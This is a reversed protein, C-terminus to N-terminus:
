ENSIIKFSFFIFISACILDLITWVDKILYIPLLPNFLIAIIIMSLFGVNNLDKLNFAFFIASITIVVRLIQYYGYDLDGIAILLLITPIFLYWNKIIKKIMILCKM